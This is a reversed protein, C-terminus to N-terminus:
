RKGLQSVPAGVGLDTLRALNCAGTLAFGTAFQASDVTRSKYGAEKLCDLFGKQNQFDAVKNPTWWGLMTELEHLLTFQQTDGNASWLEFALKESIPDIYREYENIDIGLFDISGDFFGLSNLKANLLEERARYQGIRRVVLDLSFSTDVGVYIDSYDKIERLTSLLARSDFTAGSLDISFEILSLVTTGRSVVFDFLVRPNVHAIGGALYAGGTSYASWDHVGDGRDYIALGLRAIMGDFAVESDGFM